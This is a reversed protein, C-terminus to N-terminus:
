ANKKKVKYSISLSQKTGLGRLNIFAWQVNLKKLKLGLGFTHRIPQTNFGTLLEIRDKILYSCGFKYEPKLILDKQIEFVLHFSRIPFIDFGLSGITPIPDNKDYESMTLNTIGAGININPTLSVIGSFDLQFTNISSASEIRTRQYSARLGLQAIGLKQSWNLGAMAQSLIDDGSNKVILGLVGAKTPYAAGFAANTIGDLGAINQGAIILSFGEQRANGSPNSLIAGEGTEISSTNGRSESRPDMTFFSQANLDLRFLFFIIICKFINM